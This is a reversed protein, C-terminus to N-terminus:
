PKQMQNVYDIVLDVAQVGGYGTIAAASIPVGYFVARNSATAIKLQNPSLDKEVNYATQMVLRESRKVLAATLVPDHQALKTVSGVEALKLASCSAQSCNNLLFSYPVQKSHMQTFYDKMIEQEKPSVQLVNGYVKYNKKTSTIFNEFSEIKFGSGGTQHYVKDGIRMAVHGVKNFSKPLHPVDAGPIYLFEITDKGVSQGFREFDEPPIIKHGDIEKTPKGNALFGRIDEEKNKIQSSYESLKEKNKLTIKKMSEIEDKIQKNTGLGFDKALLSFASAKKPQTQELNKVFASRLLPSLNKFAVAGSAAGVGAATIMLNTDYEERCAKLSEYSEQTPKLGYLGYQKKCVEKLNFTEKVNLGLSLTGVGASMLRPIMIASEEGMLSGFRLLKGLNLARSVLGIEGLLFPAVFLSTEIVTKKLREKKQHTYMKGLYGCASQTFLPDNFDEDAIGSSFIDQIIDPNNSALEDSYMKFHDGKRDFQYESKMKFNEYKDVTDRQNLLYKQLDLKFSENFDSLPPSHDKEISTKILKEIEEGGLIPNRNLISMKLTQLQKYNEFLDPALYGLKDKQLINIKTQVIHIDKATQLLLDFDSKFKNHQKKIEPTAADDFALHRYLPKYTRLEFTRLRILEEVKGEVWSWDKLTSNLKDLYGEKIKLVFDSQNSHCNIQNKQIKINEKKELCTKPIFNEAASISPLFLLLIGFNFSKIM